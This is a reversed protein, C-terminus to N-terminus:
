KTFFNDYNLGSFHQMQSRLSLPYVGPILIDQLIFKKDFQYKSCWNVASVWACDYLAAATLDTSWRRSNEPENPMSILKLYTLALDFSKPGFTLILENQLTSDVNIEEAYRLKLAVRKLALEEQLARRRAAPSARPQQRRPAPAAFRQPTLIITEGGSELTTPEYAYDAAPTASLFEARNDEEGEDQAAADGEETLLHEYLLADEEAWSASKRSFYFTRMAAMANASFGSAMTARSAGAVPVYRQVYNGFRDLYEIVNEANLIDITPCVNITATNNYRHVNSM